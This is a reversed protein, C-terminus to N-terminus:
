LEALKPGPLHPVTAQVLAFLTAHSVQAVKSAQLIKVV